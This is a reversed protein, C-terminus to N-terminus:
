AYVFDIWVAGSTITKPFWGQNKTWVQERPQFYFVLNNGPTSAAAEATAEFLVLGDANTFQITDGAATPKEWFIRRIDLALNNPLSLAAWNAVADTIKIPNGSTVNAM